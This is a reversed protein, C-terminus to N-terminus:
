GGSARAHGEAAPVRPAILASEGASLRAVRTPPPRDPPPGSSSDEIRSDVLLAVASMLLICIICAHVVWRGYWADEPRDFTNV